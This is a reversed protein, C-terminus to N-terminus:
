MDMILLSSQYCFVFLSNPKLFYSFLIVPIIILKFNFFFDNSFILVIEEIKNKFRDISTYPNKNKTLFKNWITPGRFFIAFRTLKLNYDCIKFHQWLIKNSIFSRSMFINPQIRHFNHQKKSQVYIFSM